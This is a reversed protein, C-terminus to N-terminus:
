QRVERGLLGTSSAALDIKAAIEIRETRAEVLQQGATSQKRDARRELQDVGM